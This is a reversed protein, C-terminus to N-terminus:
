LNVHCVFGVADYLIKEALGSDVFMDRVVYDSRYQLRDRGGRIYIDDGGSSIGHLLLMSCEKKGYLYRVIDSVDAVSLRSEGGKFALSVKVGGLLDGSISMNKIADPVADDRAVLLDIDVKFRFDVYEQLTALCSLGDSREVYKLKIAVSRDRRFQELAVEGVGKVGAKPGTTFGLVMRITPIVIYYYPDGVVGQNGTIGAITGDSLAKVQWTNRERVVTFVFARAGNVDRSEVVKVVHRKNRVSVIRVPNSINKNADYSACLDRDYAEGSSLEFVMVQVQKNMKGM